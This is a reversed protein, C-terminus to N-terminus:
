QNPFYQRSFETEGPTQNHERKHERLAQYAFDRDRGATLLSDDILSVLHMETQSTASRATRLSKVMRDAADLADVLKECQRCKANTISPM